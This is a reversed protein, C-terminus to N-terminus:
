RNASGVPAPARHRAILEAVANALQGSAEETGGSYGMGGSQGKVTYAGLSRQSTADVFEVDATMQARGAFAGLMARKLPSVKRIGSVAITILLAGSDAVSSDALTVRRFQHLDNIRMVLLAGFISQAQVMEDATNSTVRLIATNYVSLDAALETQPATQLSPTCSALLAGLLAVGVLSHTRSNTM